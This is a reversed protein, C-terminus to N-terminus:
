NFSLIRKGEVEFKNPKSVAKPPNVYFINVVNQIKDTSQVFLSAFMSQYDKAKYETPVLVSSLKGGETLKSKSAEAKPNMSHITLVGLSSISYKVNRSNEPATVHIM